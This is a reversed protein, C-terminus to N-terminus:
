KILGYVGAANKTAIKATNTITNPVTTFVYLTKARGGNQILARCIARLLDLWPLAGMLPYGAQCNIPM